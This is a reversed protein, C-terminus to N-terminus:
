IHITIRTTRPHSYISRCQIPDKIIGKDPGRCIYRSPNQQKSSRVIVNTSNVFAANNLIRVVKSFNTGNASFSNTFNISGLGIEEVTLNSTLISFNGIPQNLLLNDRASTASFHTNTSNFTNNHFVNDNAGTLLVIGRSISNLFITNNTFNNLPSNTLRIADSNGGSSSINITNHVVTNTSGTSFTIAPSTAGSTNMDFINGELLLAASTAESFGLVSGPGRVTINNNIFQSSTASTLTFVANSVGGVEITFTNNIFLNSTSTAVLQVAAGNQSM